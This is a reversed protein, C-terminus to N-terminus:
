AIYSFLFYFKLFTFLDKSYLNLSVENCFCILRQLTVMKELESTQKVQTKTLTSHSDPHLESWLKPRKQIFDCCQDEWVSYRIEVAANARRADLGDVDRQFSQSICQLNVKERGIVLTPVGKNHVSVMELAMNHKM